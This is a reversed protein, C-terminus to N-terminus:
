GPEVYYRCRQDNDSVRGVAGPYDRVAHQPDAAHESRWTEALAFAIEVRCYPRAALDPPARPALRSPRSGLLGIM